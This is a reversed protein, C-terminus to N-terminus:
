VSAINSKSFRPNHGTVSQIINPYWCLFQLLNVMFKSRSHSYIKIAIYLPFPTEKSQDHRKKKLSHRKRGRSFCFNFMVRALALSEKSFGKESLDIGEFNALTYLEIPVSEIQSAKDFKFNADMSQCKLRMAQRVLGVLLEFFIQPMKLTIKFLLILFYAWSAAQCGKSYGLFGQLYFSQLNLYM